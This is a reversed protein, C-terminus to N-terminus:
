AAPRSAGAGPSRPYRELWPVGEMRRQVARIQAKSWEHEHRSAHPKDDVIAACADLYDDSGELGLFGLVDELAARPDAILDELALDRMPLGAEKMRRIADVRRFYRGPAKEGNQRAMSAINDWPNRYVHLLRLPVGVLAELEEFIAPNLDFAVPAEQGRKTGIVRLQTYRGHWGGDVLPMPTEITRRIGRRGRAAREVTNAVLRSFLDVRTAYHLEGTTPARFSEGFLPVEHGIATEHHADLLTGVLTHGSRTYGAFLCFSEVEGFM